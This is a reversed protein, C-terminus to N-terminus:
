DCSRGEIWIRRPLSQNELLDKLSNKGGLPWAVVDARKGVTLSGVENEMQIARAARITAMQWLTMAEVEPAIKHLLRLDDMLNLDPSSACSDTGVAVNIGAALMERWRHPRHGFYYHTRPCYVVSARGRSLIALEDDDCYNVHALLTPHDLLGIDRALRIPGGSHRPVKEDWARVGIEWLDRFQGTQKELFEAEDPNEALHTALPAGTKKSYELCRAYAHPEVTYPAHPSIGIILRESRHSSDAAAAFREDLLVRRQAMAQIEGYSVVRLAAGKLAPRSFMCQKSIDGVSTVGFKLCQAVGIKMAKAVVQPMAEGWRSTDGILRMLWDVFSTPRAGQVHDSLELHTHANVPGPTLVANPLEEISAEPHKRRLEGARGIALIRGGGILVGGDEILPADM